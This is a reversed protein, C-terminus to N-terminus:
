SSSSPMLVRLVEVDGRDAWAEIRGDSRAGRMEMCMQRARTRVLVGKPRLQRWIADAIQTTMREQLQPQRAQHEVLRAFGGLGGVRGDPMYAISVDGFFPLLHHACLSHFPLEALVVPGSNEVEFVGIDPTDGEPLFEQLFGVFRQGTRDMEPDGEFGLTALLRQLTQAEDM